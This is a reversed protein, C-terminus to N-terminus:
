IFLINWTFPLSHLPFPTQLRSSGKICCCHLWTILLILYCLALLPDQQWLGSRKSVCVSYVATLFSLSLSLTCVNFQIVNSNAYLSLSHTHTHTHTHTHVTCICQMDYTHVLTTWNKTKLLVETKTDVKKKIQFFNFPNEIIYNALVELRTGSGTRWM